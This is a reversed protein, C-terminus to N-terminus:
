QPSPSHLLQAPINSGITTKVPVIRVGSVYDWHEHWFKRDYHSIKCDSYSVVTKKLNLVRCVKENEIIYQKKDLIARVDVINEDNIDIIENIHVGIM